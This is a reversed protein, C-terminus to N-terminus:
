SNQFCNPTTFNTVGFCSTFFFVLLKAAHVKKASIKYYFSFVTNSCFKAKESTSKQECASIESQHKTNKRNKLLEFFLTSTGFTKKLLFCTQDHSSNQSRETRVNVETKSQQCRNEFM